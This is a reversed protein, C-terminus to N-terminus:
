AESPPRMAGSPVVAGDPSSYRVQADPERGAGPAEDLLALLNREITSTIDDLPLHNLRELSFPNQLETGIKDLSFLPYAALMTGIPTLWGLKLVIAFPLALLFLVIFRRISIAYARPLPTKLIRECAGLHDVLLCRQMEGQLFAQRNMGRDLAEKLMGALASSVYLPRHDAASILEAKEPGLLQVVEPMDKQNRLSCRTVHAFSAVYRVFRERWSRESPGYCVGIIALNRTENVIGGWLKRAEWWRDYGANTRLGVLLALAAGAIEYPALEIGLDPLNEHRHIFTLIAAWAGMILVRVLVYPTASGEVALSESWFESDDILDKGRWGLKV